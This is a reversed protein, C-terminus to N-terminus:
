SDVPASVLGLDQRVVRNVHRILHALDGCYISPNAFGNAKSYRHPLHGAGCVPALSCSTCSPPLQQHLEMRQRVFNSSLVEAFSSSVVNWKRGLIPVGHDTIKMVDVDQIEGNTEVTLISFYGPGIGETRSEGGLTLDLVNEFLRVRLDGKSAYWSDFARQLWRGYVAANDRIGPEAIGPPINEYTGDPLLFDISPIKMRQAWTLTEVPDAALDVVALVGKFMDAYRPQSTMLRIAGEVAQFTPRGQHDIRHMDHSQPGDASVAVTMDYSAFLDLWAADLLVGNTQLSMSLQRSADPLENRVAEILMRFRQKGLLLPEGGHLVVTVEDFGTDDLYEALRRGFAAATSLSMLKPQERWSQDPHEYVYCYDCALNCRSAVKLLFSTVFPARESGEPVAGNM